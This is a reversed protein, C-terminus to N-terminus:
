KDSDIVYKLQNIKSYLYEEELKYYLLMKDRRKCTHEKLLRAKEEDSQDKLEEFEPYNNVTYADINKLQTQIDTELETVMTHLIPNKINAMYKKYSNLKENIKKKSNNEHIQQKKEFQHIAYTFNEKNAFMIRRISEDRVALEAIAPSSSQITTHIIAGLFALIITKYSIQM